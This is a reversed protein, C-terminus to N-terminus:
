VRRRGTLHAAAQQQMYQLAEVPATQMVRMCQWHVRLCCETSPVSGCYSNEVENAYQLLMSPKDVECASQAQLQQKQHGQDTDCVSSVDREKCACALGRQRSICRPWEDAIILVAPSWGTLVRCSCMDRSALTLMGSWTHVCAWALGELCNLRAHRVHMRHRHLKGQQVTRAQGGKAM